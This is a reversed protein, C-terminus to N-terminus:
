TLSKAQERILTGSERTVMREALALEMSWQRWSSYKRLSRSKSIFTMSKSNNDIVVGCIQISMHIQIMLM